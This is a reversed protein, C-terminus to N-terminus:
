SGEASYDLEVKNTLRYDNGVPLPYGDPFFDNLDFVISQTLEYNIINTVNLKRILANCFPVSLDGDATFAEDADTPLRYNWGVNTDASDGPTPNTLAPPIEYEVNGPTPCNSDKNKCAISIAASCAGSLKISKCKETNPIVTFSFDVFQSNEATIPANPSKVNSPTANATVTICPPCFANTLPAQNAIQLMQVTNSSDEVVVVSVVTITGISVLAIAGLIPHSIFFTILKILGGILKTIINKVIRFTKSLRSGDLSPRFSSRKRKKNASTLKGFRSKPSVKPTQSNSKTNLNLNTTPSTQGGSGPLHNRFSSSPRPFSSTPATGGGGFDAPSSFSAPARSGGLAGVAGTAGLATEAQSAQSPVSFVQEQDTPAQDITPTPAATPAATQNSASESRRASRPRSPMQLPPSSFTQGGGSRPPTFSVGQTPAAAPKTPATNAPITAPATSIQEATIAAAPQTFTSVQEALPPEEAPEAQQPVIPTQTPPSVLPQEPQLTPIEEEVEAQESDSFNEPESFEENEAQGAEEDQWQQSFSKKEEDVKAPTEAANTEPVVTPTERTSSAAEKNAAATEKEATITKPTHKEFYNALAYNKQGPGTTYLDNVEKTFDDLNRSIEIQLNSDTPDNLHDILEPHNFNNATQVYFDRYNQLDNKFAFIEDNNAPNIGFARLINDGNREIAVMLEEPRWGQAVAMTKALNTREARALTAQIDLPSASTPVSVETVTAPQPLPQAAPTPTVVTQPLPQATSAPATAQPQKTPISFHPVTSTAPTASASSNASNNDQSTAAQVATAAQTAAAQEAVFNSKFQSVFSPKKQGRATAM